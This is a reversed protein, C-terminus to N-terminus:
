CAHACNSFHFHADVRQLHAASLRHRGSFDQTKKGVLSVEFKQATVDQGKKNTYAYSEVHGGSLKVVFTAVKASSKTLAKM